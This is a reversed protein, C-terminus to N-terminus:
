LKFQWWIYDALCTSGDSRTTRGRNVRQRISWAVQRRTGVSESPGAECANAWSLNTTAPAVTSISQAVVSIDKGFLDIYLVKEKPNPAVSKGKNKEPSAVSLDTTAEASFLIGQQLQSGEIQFRKPAPFDASFEVFNKYFSKAEEGRGLRELAYGRLFDIYYSNEGIPLESAQIADTYRQQGLLYETYYVNPNFDGASRLAIAKRFFKEAKEDKTSALLRAYDSNLTYDDPKQALVKEFWRKAIEPEGSEIAYDKIGNTYFFEGFKGGADAAAVYQDLAMRALRRDGSRRYQDGHLGALSSRASRSNPFRRALDKLGEEEKPSGRLERIGRIVELSEDPDPMSSRSRNGPLSRLYEEVGPAFRDARRGERGEKNENPMQSVSQSVDLPESRVTMTQVLGCLSALMFVSFIKGQM